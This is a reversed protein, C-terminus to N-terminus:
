RELSVGGLVEPGDGYAYHVADLRISRRAARARRRRITRSSGVRMGRGIWTSLWARAEAVPADLVIRGEEMMVVRDAIALARDVRQESLVVACRAQEVAALFAEAGDADLQSTPEDLLLLQARLALASALCVRQLEGGSLEVTRRSALHSAGVQRPRGRGAALDAGASRGHERSRVRGRQRRADDRGPEGSGPLGVLGHGGSRRSWALAHGARRGRGPGRLPWRSLAARPGRARAPADVQRQGLPRAAGRGRGRPARALRRAGGAVGGPYTFSLGEVRVLAMDGGGRACAGRRDGRPRGVDVGSTARADSESRGFGRAEMAEALGDGARAVRRRAALAADRIRAGRAARRRPWAGVRRVRLTM